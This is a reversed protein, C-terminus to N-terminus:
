GIYPEDFNHGLKELEIVNDYVSRAFFLHIDAEQLSLWVIGYGHNGSKYRGVWENGDRRILSYHILDDNRLYKKDFSLKFGDFIIKSLRASGWKDSVFGTLEGKEDAIIYGHFYGDNIDASNIPYIDEGFVFIKGQVLKIKKDNSMVVEM